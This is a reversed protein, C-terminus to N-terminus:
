AKKRDHLLDMIMATLKQMDMPKQLYHLGKEMTESRSEDVYGSMFVVEMAPSHARLTDTLQRGTMGPMILDTLLLDIRGKHKEYVKLAEPGSSAELVAYDTTRRLMEAVVSRVEAEDDVILV